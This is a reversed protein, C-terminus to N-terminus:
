INGVTIQSLLYQVYKYCDMLNMLIFNKSRTYVKKTWKWLPPQAGIISNFFDSTNLLSFIHFICSDTLQVMFITSELFKKVKMTDITASMLIIKVNSPDKAWLLRIIIFLFDMDKDREHVEDLIKFINQKLYFKDLFIYIFM